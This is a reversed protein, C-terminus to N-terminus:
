RIRFRLRNRNESKREINGAADVGRVWVTYKGRPVRKAFRFRWTRTGTAKLYITRHCSRPRTFRGSAQLARCNRGGRVAINIAVALRALRGRCGTDASTGRLTIGRRSVKM